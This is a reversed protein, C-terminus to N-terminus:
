KKVLVRIAGTIISFFIKKAWFSEGDFEVPEDKQFEVVVKKAQYGEVGSHELLKGNFVRHLNTLIRLKGIDNIVTVALLGDDPVAHPLQNMGGGNYKCIGVNMSFVRKEWVKEDIQIRAVPPKYEIISSFIRSFYSARNKRKLLNTRYTVFGDFFLGAVNVFARKEREGSAKEYEGVGLDQVFEKGDKLTRIAEEIELPVGITRAWDKGSGFPIWGFVIEKLDYGNLFLGNVVENVTGDGGFAVIKRYGEEFAKKSLEMAHGPKETFAVRHDVRHKKLLNEVRNWIKGARGGGAAPNYILFVMNM